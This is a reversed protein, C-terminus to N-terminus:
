KIMGHVQMLNSHSQGIHKQIELRDAPKLKGMAGLVNKAVHAPVKHTSKDAFKVDHNGGTDVSKKLHMVINHDPEEGQDEGAPLPNKRPRGRAEDLEKEENAKKAAHKSMKDYISASVEKGAKKDKASIMAYKEADRAAVRKNVGKLYEGEELKLEEAMKKHSKHAESVLIELKDTPVEKEIGHEFMVDYWAINGDSDPEAHQSYITKGQGWQENKVHVACMHQGPTDKNKEDIQEVEEKALVKKLVAGAVRQGAEKSGYKASAKAAIKSFMMGPKGVDQGKKFRAEKVQEVEEKMGEVHKYGLEPNMKRIVQHFRVQRLKGALRHGKMVSKGKEVEANIKNMIEDHAAKLEDDSMQHLGKKAEVVVEEKMKAKKGARLMEFDKATLEDKEPEHVDLKQQNPHLPKKGMKKEWLAKQAEQVEKQEQEYKTKSESLIKNVSDLLNKPNNYLM